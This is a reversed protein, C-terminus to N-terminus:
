QGASPLEVRLLVRPRDTARRIPTGSETQSRDFVVLWRSEYAPRFNNEPLDMASLSNVVPDGSPSVRIREITEPDYGRVIFWAIYVDSRAQVINAISRYLALKEEPDDVPNDTTSLYFSGTRAAAQLPNADAASTDAGIELFTGQQGATPTRMAPFAGTTWEGLAATEAPTVFGPLAAALAGSEPGGSRRRLGLIPPDASLVPSLVQAPDRYRTILDIRPAISGPGSPAAQLTGGGASISSTPALMPLAHLVQQPATNINIRGQVLPDVVRLAEFCDPARLALPIQMSEPVLTPDGVPSTGGNPMEDIIFRSTDLSTIYQNPLKTADPPGGSAAPRPDARYLMAMQEGATRWKTLDNLDIDLIAPDCDFCLNAYPSIRLVESTDNLPGNPILLQFSAIDDAALVNPNTAIDDAAKVPETLDSQDAPMDYPYYASSDVLHQPALRSNSPSNDGSRIDLPDYRLWAQGDRRITYLNRGTATLALGGPAAALSPAFDMVTTTFGSPSSATANAGGRVSMRQLSGTVAVQGSILAQDSPMREDAADYGMAAFYANDLRDNNYNGVRDAALPGVPGYLQVGPSLTGNESMTPPFADAANPPSLRDIVYAPEGEANNRMLLAPRPEPTQTLTQLWMRKQDASGTTLSTDWDTFVAGAFGPRAKIADYLLDWDFSTGDQPTILVLVKSAGPDISEGAGIALAIPGADPTSADDIQTSSEPIVLQLGGLNIATNHPNYLEFAVYCGLYEAPDDGIAGNVLGAGGGSGDERYFSSTVVERLYPQRDVGIVLIPKTPNTLMGAGLIDPQVDGQPMRMTMSIDPKTGPTSPVQGDYYRTPTLNKILARLTPTNDSDVADALNVALSAATILSYAAGSTDGYLRRAPGDVGGGYHVDPTAGSFLFGSQPSSGSVAGTAPNVENRNPISHTSPDTLDRHLPMNTAMPALAWAYSAFAREIALPTLNHDLRVRDITYLGDFGFPNLVPVPSFNGSGSVTTLFRRASDHIQGLTPRADTINGGVPVLRRSETSSEKARLPGTSNDFDAPRPLYGAEEPGDFYQEARSVMSANNTGWYAMLDSLDRNPYVRAQKARPSLPSQGAFEWAVQRQLRTLPASTLSWPTTLQLGGIGRYPNTPDNLDFLEQFVDRLGLGDTLHTRFSPNASDLLVKDIAPQPNFASSTSAQEIIRVLDVDAPTLGDGLTDTNSYIGFQIASNINVLASADVIRAAVVWNLGGVNGLSDIVQWRADPRLDGDTDAWRREDSPAVPGQTTSNSSFELANMQRDYVEYTSTTALFANGQEAGIRDTSSPFNNWDVLNISPDAYENVNRIFWQALDVYRGDGRIWREEGTTSPNPDYWRYASRLNTIQRFRRTNDISATVWEPESSALWADDARAIGGPNLISRDNPPLSRLEPNLESTFTSIDLSPSDWSEGDEFMTPWVRDGSSGATAPVGATVIKNGFLDATLLSQIEQIVKDPQQQYSSRRTVSVAGARDLRVITVYAVASISLVALVGLALLLVSGRRPKSRRAIKRRKALSTTPTSPIFM